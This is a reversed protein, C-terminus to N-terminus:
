LVLAHWRAMWVAAVCFPDGARELPNAVLEFTMDANLKLAYTRDIPQDPHCLEWAMRYFCNHTAYGDVVLTGTSTGIKVIPQKGRTAFGVIRDHTSILPRGELSFKTLLRAPRISGLLRMTEKVGGDVKFQTVHSVPHAGEWWTFNRATLEDRIRDAVLGPKQSISTELYKSRVSGEGDLIGSLWGDSLSQPASWEPAVKVFADGLRLEHTRLWELGHNARRSVLWHHDATCTFTRGSELTVEITEDVDFGHSLVTAARWKRNGGRGRWRGVGDPHETFAWLEDGVNLQEIPVWMLDRTLVKHGPTLCLQLWVARHLTRDTKRDILVRQNHLWGVTDITGAYDLAAHYVVVEWALAVYGSQLRFQQDAAVYNVNEPTLDTPDFESEASDPDGTEDIARTLRHVQSGRKLGRALPGPREGAANVFPAARIGSATLLRSVSPVYRGTEVHLYRHDPTRVVVDAM